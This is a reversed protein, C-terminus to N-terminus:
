NKLPIEYVVAQKTKTIMFSTISYASLIIVLGVISAKIIGLAKKAREEDGNSTIYSYGGFVILGMFVMGTFSLMLAIVNAVVLQPEAPAGFEAKNAGANVQGMIDSSLSQAFAFDIKIIFISVFLVFVSLIIIKKMINHNVIVQVQYKKSNVTKM